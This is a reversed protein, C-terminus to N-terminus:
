GTIGDGAIFGASLNAGCRPDEAKAVRPLMLSVSIVADALMGSLDPALYRTAVSGGLCALFAAGLEDASGLGTSRLPLLCRERSVFPVANNGSTSPRLTM